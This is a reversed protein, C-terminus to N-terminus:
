SPDTGETEAGEEDVEEVPAPNMLDEYFADWEAEFQEALAEFTPTPEKEILQFIYLGEPASVPRRETVDGPNEM